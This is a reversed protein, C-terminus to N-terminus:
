PKEPNCVPRASGNRGSYTFNYNTTTVTSFGNQYRFTVRIYSATNRLTSSTPTAYADSRTADLILADTDVYRWEIYYEKFASGNLTAPAATWELRASSSGADTVCSTWSASPVTQVSQSFGANAAATWAANAAPMAGAILGVVAFSAAAAILLQRSLRM